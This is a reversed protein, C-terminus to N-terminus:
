FVENDHGTRMLYMADMEAQEARLDLLRQEGLIRDRLSQLVTKERHAGILAKQKEELVTMKLDIEENQEKMRRQLDSCFKYFMGVEFSSMMVGTRDQSEITQMLSADLSELRRREAHLAERARVLELEVQEAEHERLELVRQVTRLRNNM